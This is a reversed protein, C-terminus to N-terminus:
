CGSKFKEAISNVLSRVHLEGTFNFQEAATKEFLERKRKATGGRIRRTRRSASSRQRGTM